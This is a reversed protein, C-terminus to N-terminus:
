SSTAIADCLIAAVIGGPAHEEFYGSDAVLILKGLARSLSVDLLHCADPDTRYGSLLLGPRLPAADVLRSAIERASQTSNITRLPADRQQEISGPDPWRCRSTASM